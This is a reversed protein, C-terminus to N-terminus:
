SLFILGYSISTKIPWFHNLVSLKVHTLRDLSTIYLSSKLNPCPTQSLKVSTVDPSLDSHCAYDQGAFVLLKWAPLPTAQAFTRLGFYTRSTQPLSLLGLHSSCRPSHPCLCLTASLTTLALDSPTKYTLILISVKIEVTFPLSKFLFTM